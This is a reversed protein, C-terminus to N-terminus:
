DGSIRVTLSAWFSQWDAQPETAATPATAPIPEIVHTRFYWLGPRPPTLKAIGQADTRTHEAFVHHGIGEYAGSVRLGAAPQGRLLVQLAIPQGPKWETPDSLPAIEIEHGAPKSYVAPEESDGVDFITKAFKTYYERGPDGSKGSARRLELAAKAEEDKLYEEFKAPEIEIFKPKLAIAAVHLGEMEPKVVAVLANDQVAYGAVPARGLESVLVWEAVRAPDTGHDSKPFDEGSAFILRVEDGPATKMPEATLWSDHAAAASAVLGFAVFAFLDGRMKVHTMLGESVEDSDLRGM